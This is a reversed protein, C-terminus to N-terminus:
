AEPARADGALKRPSPVARNKLGLFRREFYTYSVRAVAICLLCGLLFSVPTPVHFRDAVKKLSVLIVFHVIYLGYVIKGIGVLTPNDFIGKSGPSVLYVTVLMFVLDVLSYSWVHQLNDTMALPLGLSAIENHIGQRRLLVHNTLGALLLVGAAILAWRGPQKLRAKLDFVAIAAGFAFGDFQSLTFVYTLSGVSSSADRDPYIGRSFLYAALCYRFIPGLLIIVGLTWGLKRRDLFYIVFPWVLYFQEEVALSWFHFFYVCHNSPDFNPNLKTFNYTYTLLYPLHDLFGRPARFLAYGLAFLFVFAFYAPFIRLARRFYFRKLFQPLSLTKDHILIQTILFGSQVFFMQVWIWAFGLLQNEFTGFYHFFLVFLIGVGRIGDLGKVYGSM